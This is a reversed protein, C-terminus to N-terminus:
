HRRDSKPSKTATALQLLTKNNECFAKAMGAAERVSEVEHNIVKDLIGASQWYGLIAAGARIIFTGIPIIAAPNAQSTALVQQAIIDYQVAGGESLALLWGTRTGAVIGAPMSLDPPVVIKHALFTAVIHPLITVAQAEAETLSKQM